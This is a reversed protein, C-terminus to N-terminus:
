NQVITGRPRTSDLDKSPEHRFLQRPRAVSSSKFAARFGPLGLGNRSPDPLCKRFGHAFAHSLAPALPFIKWSRRREAIRFMIRPPTGCDTTMDM